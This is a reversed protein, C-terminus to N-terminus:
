RQVLNRGLVLYRSRSKSTWAFGTTNWLIGRLEHETRKAKRVSDWVVIPVGLFIGVPVYEHMSLSAVVSGAEAVVLLVVGPVMAKWISAIPPLQDPSIRLPPVINKTLKPLMLIMAGCWFIAIPVSTIIVELRDQAFVLTAALALLAILTTAVVGFQSAPVTQVVTKDHRSRAM